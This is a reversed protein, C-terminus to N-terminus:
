VLGLQQGHLLLGVVSAQQHLINKGDEAYQEPVNHKLFFANRNGINVPVYRLLGSSDKERGGREAGYATEGREGAEAHHAPASSRAPRTQGAHICGACRVEPGVSVVCVRTRQVEGWPAGM